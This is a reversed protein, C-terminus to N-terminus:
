EALQVLVNTLLSEHTHDPCVCERLGAHDTSPLRNDVRQLEVYAFHSIDVDLVLPTMESFLRVELTLHNASVIMTDSTLLSLTMLGIISVESWRGLDLFYDDM